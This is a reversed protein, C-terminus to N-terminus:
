HAEPTMTGWIVSAADRADAEASWVDLWQHTMSFWGARLIADQFRPVWTDRVSNDGVWQQQPTFLIARSQTLWDSLQLKSLSTEEVLAWCKGLAEVWDKFVSTWIASCYTVCHDVWMPRLAIPIRVGQTLAYIVTMYFTQFLEKEVEATPATPVSSSLPAPMMMGPAVVAVLWYIILGVAAAGVIVVVAIYVWSDRALTTPPPAPSGTLSSPSLQNPM